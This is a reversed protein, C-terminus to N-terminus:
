IKLKIYVESLLEKISISDGNQLLNNPLRENNIMRKYRVCEEKKNSLCYDFVLHMIKKYVEPNKQLLYNIKHFRKACKEIHECYPQKEEIIRYIPCIAYEDSICFEDQVNDVISKFQNRCKRGEDTKLPCGMRNVM